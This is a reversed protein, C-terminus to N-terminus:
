PRWLRSSVPPRTRRVVHQLVYPFTFYNVASFRRRRYTRYMSPPAIQESPERCLLDFREARRAGFFRNGPSSDEERFALREAV